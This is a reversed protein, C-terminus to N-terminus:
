LQKRLDRYGARLEDFLKRAAEGMEHLPAESRQAARRAHGELEHFRKELQEWADKADAKGLHVRVKLEDRVRRLEDLEHGLRERWDAATSEKAMVEDEKDAGGCYAARVLDSETVLGVLMGEGNLVPLCGIKRELMTRAVQELTNGTGISVVEKSMVDRVEVSRMFDRRQGAEVQFARALSGALLDRQTVMGVLEIGDLVPLHRIRGLGMIDDALDLRDSPRLTAVDRQMLTHVLRERLSQM